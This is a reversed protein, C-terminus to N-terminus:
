ESYAAQLEATAKDIAGVGQPINLDSLLQLGAAFEVEALVIESRRIRLDSSAYALGKALASQSSRTQNGLAIGVSTIKASTSAFGSIEVTKAYTSEFNFSQADGATTMVMADAAYLAATASSNLHVLTESPVSNLEAILSINLLVSGDSRTVTSQFNSIGASVDAIATGQTQLSTQAANTSSSVSLATLNAYLPQVGPLDKATGLDALEIQYTSLYINGAAQITLTDSNMKEQLASFASINTKGFLGEQLQALALDSEYSSSAAINANVDSVLNMLSHLSPLALLASDEQFVEKAVGQASKLSVSVATTNVGTVEDELSTASAEINTVASEQRQAYTSFDSQFQGLETVATQESVVTANARKSLPLFVDSRFFMGRSLYTNASLVAMAPGCSNDQARAQGVYLLVQSVREGPEVSYNLSALLSAAKGLDSSALGTDTRIQACATTFATANLATVSGASCARVAVSAIASNTDNVDAIASIAEELAVPASVGTHNLAFNAATAAFTYDEMALEISRIGASLNSGARLDTQGSAFLLDGQSIQSMETSTNLGYSSALAVVSRAYSESKQGATVLSALLSRKQDSAGTQGLVIAPIITVALIVSLAVASGFGHSKRVNM